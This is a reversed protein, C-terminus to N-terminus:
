SDKTQEEHNGDGNPVDHAEQKVICSLVNFCKIALEREAKIWEINPQILLDNNM